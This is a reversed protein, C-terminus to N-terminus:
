GSAEELWRRVVPPLYVSDLALQSLARALVNTRVALPQNKDLIILWEGKFKVLGSQPRPDDEPAVFRETRVKVGLRAAAEELLLYREKLSPAKKSTM